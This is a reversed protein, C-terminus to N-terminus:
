IMTSGAGSPFALQLKQRKPDSECQMEQLKDEIHTLVMKGFAVCLGASMVNSLRM